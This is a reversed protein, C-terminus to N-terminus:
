PLDRVSSRFWGQIERWAVRTLGQPLPASEADGFYVLSRVVHGLDVGSFKREHLALASELSGSAVGAALLAHLDWFDKAAGRGAIAALKMCTLDELAALPLSWGAVHVPQALLPYHYGLVSVPVEDVEAHVTEVGRGTIRAGRVTRAVREILREVDFPGPVFVDLDRSTRHGLRAAVAVGGGLYSGAELAPALATLATRLGADAREWAGRTM